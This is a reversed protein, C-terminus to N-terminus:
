HGRQVACLRAGATGARQQGAPGARHCGGAARRGLRAQVHQRAAHMRDRRLHSVDQRHRAPGPHADEQCVDEPPLVGQPHGARTRGGSSGPSLTAAQQPRHSWSHRPLQDHQGIEHYKGCPYTTVIARSTALSRCCAPPVRRAPHRQLHRCPLGEPQPAPPRAVAAAAGGRCGTRHAAAPVAAPPPAPQPRERPGPGGAHTARSVAPADAGAAVGQPDGQAHLAPGHQQEQIQVLSNTQKDSQMCPGQTNPSLTSTHAWATMPASAVCGPVVSSPTCSTQVLSLRPPIALSVSPQIIPGSKFVGVANETCVIYTLWSRALAQGVPDMCSLALSLVSSCTPATRSSTSTSLLRRRGSRRPCIVRSLLGWGATTTEGSGRRAMPATALGCQWWIRM